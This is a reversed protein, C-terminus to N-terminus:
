SEGFVARVADLHERAARRGRETPRYHNTRGDVPRRELAGRAELRRANQYVRGHSVEEYGMAELHHRLAVGSTPEGNAELAAAARLLDREFGNLATWRLTTESTM